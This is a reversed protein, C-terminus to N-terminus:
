FHQGDTETRGIWIHSGVRTLQALVVHNERGQMQRQSKLVAGVPAAKKM